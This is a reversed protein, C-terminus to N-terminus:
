RSAENQARMALAQLDYSRDFHVRLHNAIRDFAAGDFEGPSFAWKVWRWGEESLTRSRSGLHRRIMAAFESADSARPIGGNTVWMENFPVYTLSIAPRDLFSAELLMTSNFSVVLDTHVISELPGAGAQQLAPDELVAISSQGLREPLDGLYHAKRQPSFAPHLRVILNHGEACAIDHADLVAQRQATRANAGFQQDLPQMAFLITSRAPDLGHFRLYDERTLRPRYTLTAEIKPSGVVAMKQPAVGREEFIERQLNGWVLIHDAIPASVGNPAYRYFKDRDAFVSEHPILVVPVGLDRFVQTIDHLGPPWDHTVVLGHASRPTAALVSLVDSRFADPEELAYKMFEFRDALRRSQIASRFDIFEVLLDETASFRSM